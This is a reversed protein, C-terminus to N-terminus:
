ILELELRLDTTGTESEDGGHIGRGADFLEASLDAMVFLAIVDVGRRFDGVGLEIRQQALKLIELAIM